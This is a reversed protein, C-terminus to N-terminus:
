VSSYYYYQQIWGASHCASFEIMLYCSPLCLLIHGSLCIPLCSPLGLLLSIYLPFQALITAVDDCNTLM